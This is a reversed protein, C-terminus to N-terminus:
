GAASYRVTSTDTTVGKNVMDFFKVHVEQIHFVHSHTFKTHRVKIPSCIFNFALNGYFISQAPNIHRM